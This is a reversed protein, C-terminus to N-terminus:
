VSGRYDPLSQRSVAHRAPLQAIPCDLRARDDARSVQQFLETETVRLQLCSLRSLREHREALRSQDARGHKRGDEASYSSSVVAIEKVSEQNPTVVAAGGLGLSNVSVGDIQYNNSSVRQGNASIQTQNETQFIGTNSAGGLQEVGPMFQATNGGGARSPDGLVGRATRALEYPNRGVQPLRQVEETTIVSKVSGNETELAATSTDTVTVTESVEGPTLALDIGQVDEASVVVNELVQKKFGSKEATLAYNGPALQNFRYFGEDSSTVTQTKSTEKNTLTIAAGPVRGGATDTVTGQIGAKFQANAAGVAFMLFLGCTIVRILSFTTRNM